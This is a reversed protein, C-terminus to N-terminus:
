EQAAEQTPSPPMVVGGARACDERTAALLVPAPAQADGFRCLFPDASGPDSEGSGPAASFQDCIIPFTTCDIERGDLPEPRPGALAPQLLLVGACLLLTGTAITFRLM